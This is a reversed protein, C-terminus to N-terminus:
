MHKCWVCVGGSSVSMVLRLPLGGLLPASPPPPREETSPCGWLVLSLGDTWYKPIVSGTQKKKNYFDKKIKEKVVMGRPKKNTKKVNILKKVTTM